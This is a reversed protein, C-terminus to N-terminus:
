GAVPTTNLLISISDDSLNPVALDQIGDGNFDGVAVSWPGDGVDFNTPDLFDGDGTGLLVSIDNDRFNAVVLDSISDNNFDGVTVGRPLQETDFETSEGFRGNGEGLLVSIPNIDAQGNGTTTVLDSIGDGNFEGVALSSPFDAFDDVSIDFSIANGFSGDGNG